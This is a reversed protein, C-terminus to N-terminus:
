MLIILALWVQLIYRRTSKPHTSKLLSLSVYRDAYLYFYVFLPLALISMHNVISILRGAFLNLTVCLSISLDMNSIILRSLISFVMILCLVFSVSNMAFIALYLYLHTPWIVRSDSLLHVSPTVVWLSCSSYLHDDVFHISSSFLIAPLHEVTSVIPQCIKNHNNTFHLRVCHGYIWHNLLCYFYFYRRILLSLFYPCFQIM